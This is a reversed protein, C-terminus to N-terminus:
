AKQILRWASTAPNYVFETYLLASIVTTTPLAVTSAEFKAGWAITRATGNDTFCIVLTQFPSPTGTLNTTMSTINAALSTISAVAMNNTNISPTASSAVTGVIPAPQLATGAAATTSSTGIQLGSYALSAWATVGDGTKSRGTDTEKGEEAVALIPNASTWNAATDRRLEIRTVTM